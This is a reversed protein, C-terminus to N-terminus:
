SDTISTTTQALWALVQVWWIHYRKTLLNRCARRHLYPFLWTFTSRHHRHYQLRLRLVVVDDFPFMKRTVPWKHPSNMSWRHIGQVFALSVFSQHKRQDIRFLRNLLCDLCQHNSASDRENHRWKLPFYGLTCPDSPSPSIAILTQVVSKTSIYQNVGSFVFSRWTSLKTAM